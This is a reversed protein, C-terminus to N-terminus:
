QHPRHATAHRGGGPGGRDGAAAAAAAAPAARRARGAAGAAGPAACGLLSRPQPLCTIHTCSSRYCVMWQLNHMDGHAAPQMLCSALGSCLVTAAVLAAAGTCGGVSAYPQAVEAFQYQPNLTKGIGELTSFARLVFTFTAPFRFPQDLAIAFLDEGIRNITERRETQQTINDLFYAISRRLALRDGTATIVKLAVLADIVQPCPAPGHPSSPAARLGATCLHHCWQGGDGSLWVTTQVAVWGQM